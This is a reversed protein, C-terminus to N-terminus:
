VARFNPKSWRQNADFTYSLQVVIKSLRILPTPPDQLVNEDKVYSERADFIGALGKIRLFPRWLYRQRVNSLLQSLKSVPWLHVANSAFWIRGKAVKSVLWLNPLSLRLWRYCIDFTLPLPSNEHLTFIKLGCYGSFPSRYFYFRRTNTNHKEKQASYWCILIANVLM